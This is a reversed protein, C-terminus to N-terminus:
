AEYTTNPWIVLEANDGVGAAITAGHDGLLLPNVERNTVIELVM